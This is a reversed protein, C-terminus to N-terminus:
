EFVRRELVMFLYNNAVKWATSWTPVYRCLKCQPVSPGIAGLVRFLAVPLGLGKSSGYRTSLRPGLYRPPNKVAKERPLFKPRGLYSVYKQLWM